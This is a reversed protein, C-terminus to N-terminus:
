RWEFTWLLLWIIIGALVIATSTFSIVTGDAGDVWYVYRKWVIEEKGM